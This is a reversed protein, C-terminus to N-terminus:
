PLTLLILPIHLLTWISYRILAEKRTPKALVGFYIGKFLTNSMTSILIASAVLGEAPASSRVFSLVYPDIDTVGVVASLV